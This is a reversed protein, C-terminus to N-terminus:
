KRFFKLTDSLAVVYDTGNWVSHYADKYTVLKISPNSKVFAQHAKTDVFTDKTGRHIEMPVSIKKAVASMGSKTTAGEVEALWRRSPVAQVLEPHKRLFANYLSWRFEHNTDQEDAFQAVSPDYVMQAPVPPWQGDFLIRGTSLIFQQFWTTGLGFLPSNLVAAKIGSKPNEALYHAAVLGGTSHAFIFKENDPFEVNVVNDVFHELDRVYDSFNSVHVTQVHLAAEMKDPRPYRESSGMGRLNLAAVNFGEAWFDSMLEHYKDPSETFGPVLIIVRKSGTRRLLSYAVKLKDLDGDRRFTRVGAEKLLSEGHNWSTQIQQTSKDDLALASAAIFLLFGAVFKL